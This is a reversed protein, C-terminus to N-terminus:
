KASSSASATASAAGGPPGWNYERLVRDTLDYEPKLGGVPVAKKDVVIDIGDAEAIRKYIAKVKKEIPFFLEDERRALELNVAKVQDQYARLKKDYAFVAASLQPSPGKAAKSLAALEEQQYKLEDEMAFLQAERKAKLKILAAKARLGDETENVCRETDVFAMKVKIMPPAASVVATVAVPAALALLLAAARLLRPRM